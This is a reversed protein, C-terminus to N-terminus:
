PYRIELEYLVPVPTQGERGPRFRWQLLADLAPFAMTPLLGTGVVRPRRPRGQADIVIEIAIRGEIGSRTVSRPYVPRVAHLIDVERYSTPRKDTARPEASGTDPLDDLSRGSLLQRARGMGELTLRPLDNLFNQAALWHWRAAEDRGLNAEAIAQIVLAQAAVAVAPEADGPDSVLKERFDVSRELARKWQGDDLLKELEEVKRTWRKEQASVGEPWVLLGAWLALLAATSRLVM